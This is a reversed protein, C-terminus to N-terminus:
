VYNATYILGYFCFKATSNVVNEVKLFHAKRYVINIKSM